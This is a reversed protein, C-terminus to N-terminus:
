QIEGRPFKIQFKPRGGDGLCLEGDLQRTLAQVLRMGMTKSERTLLDPPLPFGDDDVTLIWSDDDARLGVRIEGESRDRFAHKLSNSIM